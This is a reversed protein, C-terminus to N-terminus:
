CACGRCCISGLKSHSANCGTRQWNQRRARVRGPQVMRRCRGRWAACSCGLRGETASVQVARHLQGPADVAATVAQLSSSQAAGGEAEGEAEPLARDATWSGWKRQQGNDPPRPRRWQWWWRQGWRQRQRQLRRRRGLQEGRCWEVRSGSARHMVSWHRLARQDCPQRVASLAATARQWVCWRNLHQATRRVRRGGGGGGGLSCNM